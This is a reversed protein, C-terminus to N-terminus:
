MVSSLVSILAEVESFLPSTALCSQRDGLLRLGAWLPSELHLLTRRSTHRAWTAALEKLIVRPSGSHSHHQWTVWSVFGQGHPPSELHLPTWFSTHLAWTAVEAKQIVSCPIGEDAGLHTM